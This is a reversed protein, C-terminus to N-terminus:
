LSSHTPLALIHRYFNEILDNSIISNRGFHGWTKTWPTGPKHTAASLAIAGHPGYNVAVERMIEQESSSFEYAPNAGAVVSVPSSRFDRVANYVSRIVPGYRWAEVPEDLLPVGHKGLMYGHAIYVLKILQMPTVAPDRTQRCCDLIYQAAALSKASNM